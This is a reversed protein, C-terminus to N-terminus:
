RDDYVPRNSSFIFKIQINLTIVLICSHSTYYITLVCCMWVVWAVQLGAPLVKVKAIM